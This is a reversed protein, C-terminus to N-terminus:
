VLAARYENGTWELDCYFTQTWEMVRGRDSKAKVVYLTSMRWSSGPIGGAPDRSAISWWGGGANRPVGYGDERELWKRQVLPDCYEQGAAWVAKDSRPDVAADADDDKTQFGTAASIGIYLALVLVLGGGIWWWKGIRKM